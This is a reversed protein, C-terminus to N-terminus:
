MSDASDITVSDSDDARLSDNGDMWVSDTDNTEYIRGSDADVTREAADTREADDTWM